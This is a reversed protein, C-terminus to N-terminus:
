GNNLLEELAIIRQELENSRDKERKVVDLLYVTLKDYQVSEPIPTELTEYTPAGNEDTIVHGTEDYDVEVTKYFVLRPEVEAVEEAILGVYSWEEKNDVNPEKARFWVPRLELVKDAVEHELPEIDKKYKASSTTRRLQMDSSSQVNATGTLTTNYISNWYAGGVNGSLYIVNGTLTLQSTPSADISGFQATAPNNTFQIYANGGGANQRIVVGGSSGANPSVAFVRASFVNATTLDGTVTTGAPAVAVQATTSNGGARITTTGGSGGSVFTDTGDTILNYEAGTMNATALGTYAANATWARLVPGGDTGASNARVSGTFTAGSLAAYNSATEVAMTGLGLTTRASAADADDILSRGFATLTTTSATGAGTFYPLADAASTLGSLAALDADYAQVNTGIELGLTTRSASADADDILTRAFSSLTTTTATGSGTFYPLANAASTLSSIATLESDLPQYTSSASATTLYGSISAGEPITVTGTFTPSALPSKANLQTQISSTVGDLYGVETDSVNAVRPQYDVTLDVGIIDWSTGNYRYGEYEDNVQPAPSIPFITAM